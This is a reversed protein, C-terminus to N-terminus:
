HRGLAWLFGALERGGAVAALGEGLAAPGKAAPEKELLALCQLKTKAKLSRLEAVFFFCIQQRRLLAKYVTYM